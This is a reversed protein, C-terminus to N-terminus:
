RLCAELIPVWRELPEDELGAVKAAEDARRLAVADAHHPAAEFAAQEAADLVEGQAALTRISGPSLSARYGPDVTVLWRKAPVHLEVLAGIREGLLPELYAQGHRGHGAVDGPVLLHGIDHLLGATHLEVDDPRQTALVSACQLAHSLQTFGDGEGDGTGRALVALIDDISRAAIM